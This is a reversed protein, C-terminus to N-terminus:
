VLKINWGLLGIYEEAEIRAVQYHDAIMKVLDKNYKDQASSM